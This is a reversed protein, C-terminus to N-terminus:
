ALAWSFTTTPEPVSEPAATATLELVYSGSDNHDGVFGFDAFASVALNIEGTVSVTGSLKSLLGIGGDDDFALQSGSADYHGLVTDPEGSIIEATFMSGPLFANFNYFDVDNALSDIGLIVFLDFAGVGSHNGIFGFDAFATVGLNIEGAANITSGLASAFGNGVPSSDDNTLILTGPNFTSDPFHGLITDVGSSSNDTFAFFPDGATLGGFTFFDIDGGGAALDGAASLDPALLGGLLSGEVSTAGPALVQAAAFVDNPEVEPVANASVPVLATLALASLWRTISGSVRM